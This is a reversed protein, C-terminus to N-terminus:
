LILMGDGYSLFRYRNSLAYHYSEELLERGMLAEVILMHTTGPQHFNTVLCDVLNFKYEPTIFLDAEFEEGEACKVRAMSELARVVTTGVAIVRGGRDKADRIKAMLSASFVCREPAPPIVRTKGEKGHVYVPIFSPTGVHLTVFDVSYVADRLRDMIEPTFHLGATPAAVSGPHSAFFTQYDREDAKDGEGGRIYP